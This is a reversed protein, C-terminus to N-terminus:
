DYREFTTPVGANNLDDLAEQERKIPSGDAKTKGVNCGRVCGNPDRYLVDPRRGTKNGGPTKTLTEPLRGGGAIVTGGEAEVRDGVERIKKNHPANPDTKPGRKNTAVRKVSSKKLVKKAIQTAASTVLKKTSLPVAVGTKSEVFSEVAMTGVEKAIFIILPIVFVPLEGNPDTYAFPNNNAYAYRNFSTPNDSMFGVPDDSYFRGITPDYYRAGMYSLGLDADYVHGTHAPENSIATGRQEGFPEYRVRKTIQGHINSEAAVSGQFDEHIYTVQATASNITLVVLLIASSIIKNFM